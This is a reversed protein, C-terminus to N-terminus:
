HLVNSLWLCGYSIMQPLNQTGVIFIAGELLLDRFDSTKIGNKRYFAGFCLMDNFYEFIDWKRYRCRRPYNELAFSHLQSNPITWLIVNLNHFIVFIVWKQHNKGWFWECRPTGQLWALAVHELILLMRKFVNTALRSNRDQFIFKRSPFGWFRAKKTNKQMFHGLIGKHLLILCTMWGYVLAWGIYLHILM